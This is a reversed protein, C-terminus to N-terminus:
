NKDEVKIRGDKNMKFKVDAVESLVTLVTELSEANPISGRLVIDKQTTQVDFDVNYTRSIAKLASSLTMNELSTVGSRWSLVDSVSVQRVRFMHGQFESQEGPILTVVNGADGKVSVKVSGSALTTLLPESPYASINFETGLVTVIQQGSEVRFPSSENRAVQFFAEGGMRVRREEKGFKVPYELWSDSNLWVVSGDALVVRYQGSGRPVSVKNYLPAEENGEATKGKDDYEIRGKKITLATGDEEEMEASQDGIYRETGDSLQLIATHPPPGFQALVKEDPYFLYRSLALTTCVAIVAVSAAVAVLHHLKFTRPRKRERIRSSISSYDGKILQARMGWRLRLYGTRVEDFLRRNEDSEEKWALVQAAEEQTLNGHFYDLLVSETIHLKPEM